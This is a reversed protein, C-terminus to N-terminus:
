GGAAARSDRVAVYDAAPVCVQRPLLVLAV